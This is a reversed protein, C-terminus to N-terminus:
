SVEQLTRSLSLFMIAALASGTKSNAKSRCKDGIRRRPRNAPRGGEREVEVM